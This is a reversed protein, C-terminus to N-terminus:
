STRNHCKELRESVLQAFQEPELDPFRRRLGNLFLKKSFNSLEFAKGLREEPTM